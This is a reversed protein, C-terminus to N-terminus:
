ARLRSAPPWFAEPLLGEQDRPLALGRPLLSGSYAYDGTQFLDITGTGSASFPSRVYSGASSLAMTEGKFNRYYRGWLVEGEGAKAQIDFRGKEEERPSSLKLHIKGTIREGAKLNDHSAFGGENLDLTVDAKWEPQAAVRGETRMEVSGRGKFTWSQYEDPLLPRVMAFVQSVEFSTASFSAALHLPDGHRRM